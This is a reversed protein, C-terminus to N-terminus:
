RKIMKYQLFMSICYLIHFWGAVYSNQTIIIFSYNDFIINIIYQIIIYIITIITIHHHDPLPPWWHHHHHGDIITTIVKVFSLGFRAQMERKIDKNDSSEPNESCYHFPGSCGPLTVTRATGVKSYSYSCVSSVHPKLITVSYIILWFDSETDAGKINTDERM